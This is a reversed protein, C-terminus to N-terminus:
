ALPRHGLQKADERVVKQYVPTFYEDVSFPTLLLGRLSQWEEGEFGQVGFEVRTGDSRLRFTHALRDWFSFITGYNSNTESLLRSHHVRHIAPTTVVTRLIRDIAEPLNINSHHLFIVPLMLADYLLVNQLSVGLIAIVLARLIGSIIIESTHFRTASTVDMETDSHHVRHFCWLLAVEHNARHWLYMWADLLVISLLATVLPPLAILRLLGFNSSEAWNAVGVLLFASLLASVLLNGGTLTLNRMAHRLRHSRGQVAPFISELAWISVFTFAIALKSLLNIDSLNAGGKLTPLNSTEGSYNM